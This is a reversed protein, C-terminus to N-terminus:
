WERVLLQLPLLPRLPLLPLLPRLPHSPLREYWWVLPLFQDAELAVALGARGVRV